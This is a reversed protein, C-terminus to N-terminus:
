SPEKDNQKRKVLEFQFKISEEVSLSTYEFPSNFITGKIGLSWRILDTENHVIKLNEIVGSIGIIGSLIRVLEKDSKNKIIEQIEQSYEDLNNYVLVYDIIADVLESKDINMKM